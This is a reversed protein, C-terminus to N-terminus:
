LLMFVVLSYLDGGDLIIEQLGLDRCFEVACLAGMSEAIVPERTQSMAACV